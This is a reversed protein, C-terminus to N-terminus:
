SQPLGHPNLSTRSAFGNPRIRKLLSLNKLKESRVWFNEFTVRPGFSGLLGINMCMARKCIVPVLADNVSRVGFVGNLRKSPGSSIMTVFNSVSGVELFGYAKEPEVSAPSFNEQPPWKKSSGSRESPFKDKVPNASRLYAGNYWSRTLNSILSPM